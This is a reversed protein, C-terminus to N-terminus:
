RAPRRRRSTPSTTSGAARSPGGPGTPPPAPWRPWPPRRTVTPPYRGAPRAAAAAPCIRAPQAGRRGAPHARGGGPRGPGPRRDRRDAPRGRYDRGGRRRGRAVGPVPPFGRRVRHGDHRHPRPLRDPGPRHLRRRGAAGRQGRQVRDRGHARGSGAPHGAARHGRDARRIRAHHHGRGARVTSRPQPPASGSRDGPHQGAASRGALVTLVPMAAGVRRATRAFKRPNGFSEIYLVAVKTVGDHEWWLLLDNSSVDLKPGVSVFSSIGVGLRSLQDVLAFGLGGSQMVLGAVGPRPPSAAFTANLGIGPVAVGFGDPGVLRMGHRRCVALLAACAAADLGSTIVVLSRVGRQGCQEAVELVAGAPVAIVALDVAEPLDLVSALRQVGGIEGASPNVAYLRGAYGGAAINDLIARGATGQRRSAGVVAVSEPAFVHRLSAAEASREREAVVTLYDDLATWSGDGPLPFTLEYVGEAYHRDVPLGADAFVNLMARNESLTQATFATIQQQRAWSVLHELLLTAIGRHHMHDAVAFAVEARGQSPRWPRTAPAASWRAAPPPWCRWTVRRPTVASGGPRWRPRWGASISSACIPTIPPCRRTCPRSRTSTPRPPRASRSRRGTPWCRTCRKAANVKGTQGGAPFWVAPCRATKGRLSDVVKRPYALPRM